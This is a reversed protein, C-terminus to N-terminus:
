ELGLARRVIPDEMPRYLPKPAAQRVPRGRILLPRPNSSTDPTGAGTGKGMGALAAQYAAIATAHPDYPNIGSSATSPSSSGSGDGGGGPAYVPAPMSSGWHDSGPQSSNDGGGTVGTPASPHALAANIGDAATPGGMWGSITNGMGLLTGAPGLLSSAAIGAVSNGAWHPVSLHKAPAGDPTTPDSTGDAPAAPDNFSIGAGTPQPAAEVGRTVTLPSPTGYVGPQSIGTEQASTDATDLGSAAGPSYSYGPLDGLGNEAPTGPTTVTQTTSGATPAAAAIKGQLDGLTQVGSFLDPHAQVTAPSIDVSSIPDGPPGNMVAIGNAVGLTDAALANAPTPALGNITLAHQVEPSVGYPAPTTTTATSPETAPTAVGPSYTSEPSIGDFSSPAASDMGSAAGPSYNAYRGPAIAATTTSVTGAGMISNFKAKLDGVTQVGNFVAPNERAEEATIGAAGIPTDDSKSLVSTAKPAGLLHAGYLNGYTPDIGSRELAARNESTLANQAAEIQAPTADRPNAPLNLSDYNDRLGNWTAPTFQYHGYAGTDPNTAVGTPDEFAAVRQNYNTLDSTSASTTDGALSPTGLGPQQTGNQQALYGAVVARDEDTGTGNQLNQRAAMVQSDTIASLTGLGSLNNGAFDTYGTVQAFGQGDYDNGFTGVGTARGLQTGLYQHAAETADPGAMAPQGGFVNPAPTNTTMSQASPSLDGAAAGAFPSLNGHITLASTGNVATPDGDANLGATDSTRDTGMVQQLSGVTLPGMPTQSMTGYPSAPAAPAQAPSTFGGFVDGIDGLMGGLVAPSVGHYAEAPQATTDPAAAGLAAAVSAPVNPSLGAYSGVYGEASPLGGQLAGTLAGTQIGSPTSYSGNPDTSSADTGGYGDAGLSSQTVNGKAGFNDFGPMTGDRNMTSLGYAGPGSLAGTTGVNSMGAIGSDIGGMGMIGMMQGSPSLGSVGDPNSAGVSSPTTGTTGDGTSSNGFASQANAMSGYPGVSGLGASGFSGFAGSTSVGNMSGTGDEGADSGGAAENSASQGATYGSMMSASPTAGTMGGSTDNAAPGSGFGGFGGSMDGSNSFGGASPAGYSGGMSGVDGSSGNSGGFGGFGGVSGGVGGSDAGSAAGSSFGGSSQTGSSSGGGYGDSSGGGFGGVGGSSGSSSNSSPSSSSSGGGYGDSSGGGFGGVGGASGSSTSSSSSGSSGVSFGGGSNSSSSSSSGGGYGDSSGGGFGGVGGSSGSSSGGGYGDGSSSGGFGGVSGASGSSSSSGSDGSNGHGDGGNDGGSSSSGGSRSSDGGADGGDEFHPRMGLAALVHHPLRSSVPGGRAFAGRTVGDPGVVPTQGYSLQDGSHPPPAPLAGLGGASLLDTSGEMAPDFTGFVSRINHPHFVAVQTQPADDFNPGSVDVMNHFVVGDHGAHRAAEIADHVSAGSYGGGGMDVVMPNKLRAFVPLVNGNTSHYASAYANAVEPDPTLFTARENSLAEPDHFGTGKWHNPTGHYLPTSTDFGMDTARGLRADKDMSLGNPNLSDIRQQLEAPTAQIPDEGAPSARMDHALDAFLSEFDWAKAPGAVSMAGGASGLAGAEAMPMGGAPLMAALSAARAIGEDSMPDVAGQMVDRPLTVADGIGQAVHAAYAPVGAITRDVVTSGTDGSYPAPDPDPTSGLANDPMVTGGDDYHRRGLAALVHHPLGGDAFHQRHHAGVLSRPSALGPTAVTPLPMAAFMPGPRAMGGRAFHEAARLAAVVSPPLPRNM